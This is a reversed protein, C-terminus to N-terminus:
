RLNNGHNSRYGIKKDLSITKATVQATFLLAALGLLLAALINKNLSIKSM